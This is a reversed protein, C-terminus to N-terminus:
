HSEGIEDVAPGDSFCDVGFGGRVDPLQLIAAEL